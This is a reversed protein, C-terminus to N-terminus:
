QYFFYLIFFFLSSFTRFGHGLNGVGFIFKNETLSLAYTLHYYSFDDHSKYIYLGLFLFIIILFLVKLNKFEIKLSKSYKFFCFIGFLHLIINHIVGHKLIFSSVVSIVILFFFGILGQYGINFTQLNKNIKESFFYGYGITSFVILISYFIFILHNSM